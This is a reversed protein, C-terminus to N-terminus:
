RDSVPAVPAPPATTTAAQDGPLKRLKFTSGLTSQQQKSTPAPQNTQSGLVSGGGFKTAEESKAIDIANPDLQLSTGNELAVIAKGNVITWKAKARYQTGDKLVVFYTAFAPSSLPSVRASSWWFKRMQGDIISARWARRSPFLGGRRFLNVGDDPVDLAEAELRM